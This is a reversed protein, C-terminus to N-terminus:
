YLHTEFFRYLAVKVPIIFIITDSSLIHKFGDDDKGNYRNHFHTNGNSIIFYGALMVCVFPHDVQQHSYEGNNLNIEDHSGEHVQFMLLLPKHYGNKRWKCEQYPGNYRKGHLTGAPAGHAVKQI